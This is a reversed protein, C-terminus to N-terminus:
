LCFTLKNEDPALFFPCVRLDTGAINAYGPYKFPNYPRAKRGGTKKGQWM